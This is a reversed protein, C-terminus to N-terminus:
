NFLPNSDLKKNHPLNAIVKGPDSENGSELEENAKVPNTPTAGPQAGYTEAKTKWEAAQAQATTLSANATTLNTNATALDQTLQNIQTQFGAQATTLSDNASQLRSLENNLQEVQEQTMEQNDATASLGLFAGIATMAAKFKPMSNNNTHSSNKTQSNNALQQALAIADELTGISDALGLAIAQKALYMQGNLPEGATKGKLPESEKLKGARSQRVANIFIDNTPDLVHEQIPKYNGKQAQLGDENKQHSNTARIYHTKIGYKADAESSDRFSIATGISGIQATENSMMIHAAASALVYGSSAILGDGFAVVPKKSNEIVQRFEFTGDVAGGGTSIDLVHGSINPHEDAMKLWAKMSQTGPSGCYDQKMIPGKIPLVAISGPEAQDFSEYRVIGGDAAMNIAYCVPQTNEEDMEVSEGALLKYVLPMYPEAYSAEIMFLGTALQNILHFNKRLSQM